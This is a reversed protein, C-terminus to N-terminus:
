DEMDNPPAPLSMWHTVYRTMDLPASQGEVIFTKRWEARDSNWSLIQTVSDGWRNCRCLYAGPAEPLGKKVSM